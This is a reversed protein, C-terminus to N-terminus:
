NEGWSHEANIGMKGNKFIVFNFSKDFWRDTAKGHLLSQAWKDLKSPDNEDYYVEEEDLIVVFAAGEIARLSLKNIGTNFYRRRAIAWPTREGATFAALEAEGKQPTCDSDLIEQFAHQLEKPELLRKGSHISLKFWCGRCYVAIHKADNFVRFTDSEEGPIRCSNFLREYQITCFPVKSKPSLSFPTVEQREIMRRFLLAAWTINAARAAQLHTPQMNLTDFGYYNSNIMIPSRQRMYVFEEWWDSVYNVSLWSKIILYRQLRRGLGKRFKETLLVMENYEDDTTFPRISKLHRDLTDDLNPLPLHPLSGQFSHLTPEFKSIFHLIGFWIKTFQTINKEFSSQYMWGKYSLLFKLSLRMIQILIFWFLSGGILLSMMHCFYGSGFIYYLIWNRLLTVIGLTLDIYFLAGLVVIGLTAVLSTLNAPFIGAKFHNKFRAFRKRYSRSFASWIDRLLEQDYSVAVGDHTLAINIGAVSRAEAM